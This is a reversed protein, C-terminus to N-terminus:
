FLRGGQPWEHPLRDNKSMNCHPCALVVYSADHRPTFEPRSIPIVHDLHYVYTGDKRQEFKAFCYYCAHKQAKLKAQIQQATLTGKLDKKHARRKQWAVRARMLHLGHRDYYRQRSRKTLVERHMRQYQRSRIREEELHAERHQRRRANAEERHTAHYHRSKALDHERHEERYHRKRILIKERHSEHYHKQWIRIEEEHAQAYRKSEEKHAVNYIKRDEKRCAKCHPQLGDRSHKNFFATTAPFFQKCKSCQKQPTDLPITDM